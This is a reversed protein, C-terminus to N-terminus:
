AQEEAKEEENSQESEKVYNWIDGPFKFTVDCKKTGSQVIAERIVGKAVESVECHDM